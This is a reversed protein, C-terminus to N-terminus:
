VKRILYNVGYSMPFVILFIYALPFVVSYFPIEPLFSVNHYFFFNLNFEKGYYLVIPLLIAFLIFSFKWANKSENGVLFIAILAIPLVLLHVSISAIQSLLPENIIYAASGFLFNGTFLFSFFDITWGIQGFFLVSFEGILIFNNRFLIGIGFILPAFNCFWFYRPFDQAIYIIQWLRFIGMLILVIGLINLFLDRKKMLCYVFVLYYINSHM